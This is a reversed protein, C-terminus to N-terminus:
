IIKRKLEAFYNMREKKSKCQIKAYVNINEDFTGKELKYYKLLQKLQNSMTTTLRLRNIITEVIIKEENKLVDEEYFFATKIENIWKIIELSKNSLLNSISKMKLKSDAELHDSIIKVFFMQHSKLFVLAAEYIGSAEMDVLQGQIELNKNNIVTPVTEISREQFPHKLIMDPYFTRKTDYDIIKNCLIIDGIQLTEDKTGCVGINIFIDECKLKYKSFLYTVAVASMVKGIGTVILTTDVNKFVQFKNCRLDKKLNLKKIFPVAESYMSTSIFIM